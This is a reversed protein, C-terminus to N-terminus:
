RRERNKSENDEQHERVKAEFFKKELQRREWLFAALLLIAIAVIWPLFRWYNDLWVAVMGGGLLFLMVWPMARDNHEMREKIEDSDKKM